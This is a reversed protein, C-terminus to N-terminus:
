EKKISIVKNAVKETVGKPLLWKLTLIGNKISAQPEVEKLIDPLTVERMFQRRSTERIPYNGDEPLSESQGSIRVTCQPTQEVKVNEPEVGAVIAHIVFYKGETGIDMKPLGGSTVVKNHTTNSFFQNILENFTQEFPGFFEDRAGGVDWLSSVPRRLLAGM